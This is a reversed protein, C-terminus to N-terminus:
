NTEEKKVEFLTAHYPIGVIEQKQYVKKKYQSVSYSIEVRQRSADVEIATVFEHGVVFTKKDNPFYVVVSNVYYNEM